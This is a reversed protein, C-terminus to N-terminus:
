AFICADKKAGCSGKGHTYIDKTEIVQEPNNRIIRRKIGEQFIKRKEHNRGTNDTKNEKISFVSILFNNGESKHSAKQENERNCHHMHEVDSM